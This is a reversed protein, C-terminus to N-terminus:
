RSGQLYRGAPRGLYPGRKLDSPLPYEVVRRTGLDSYRGVVSGYPVTSPRITGRYAGARIPAIRVDDVVTNTVVPPPVAPLLPAEAARRSELEAELEEEFKFKGEHLAERNPVEVV